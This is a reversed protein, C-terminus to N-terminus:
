SSQIFDPLRWSGDFAAAEPGYIRFYVFWGAGPLTQVWYSEEVGEPRTPGFWLRVTDEDQDQALEFMSRLAARNQEAAIESRTRADYVTISWFLRAPVPVPVDLRYTHEGTLYGGTADRLGLWYLSGAGPHRAFMAPSEVQAQYFWKERAYLDTHNETDFTGNDARLVSWEWHSDDWVHREPRTDAFSQALLQAHGARSAHELIRQMREDPEFPRGKEIGLQALEGYEFRYEPKLADTQLIEHLVRWYDLSEEWPQPTFDGSDLSVWDNKVTSPDAGLPYVKVQKILEIAGDVDGRVPMARVLGLVRNTSPRGLYYGEPIEGEWGPPVLLHRGGKGADPGPLGYDFVWLQNLDDAAGMLPGEPLDFVMPGGSLDVALGAYPTDSNPTFVLVQPTATMLAFVRNAVVGGALNGRWTAEFSVTPWFFRYAHVARVFDAEDHARAATAETPYGGIVDYDEDFV